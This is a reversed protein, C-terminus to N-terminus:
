KSYLKFLACGADHKRSEQVAETLPRKEALFYFLHIAFLMAAKGEIDDTPAIYADCGGGLFAAALADTGTRCGLNVVLRGPMQVISALEAASVSREHPVLISDGEGHCSLVVYHFTPVSGRLIELLQRRSGVWHVEVRYNFCELVSRLAVAELSSYSVVILSVSEQLVLPFEGEPSMNIVKRHLEGEAMRLVSEIFEAKGPTYLARNGQAKRALGKKLRPHL